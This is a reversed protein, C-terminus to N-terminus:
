LCHSGPVEVGSDVQWELDEVMHQVKVCDLNFLCNQHSCAHSVQVVINSINHVLHSAAKEIGHAACWGCYFQYTEFCSGPPLYKRVLGSVDKTASLEELCIVGPALLLWCNKTRLFNPLPEPLHRLDQRKQWPWSSHHIPNCFNRSSPMLREWTAWSNLVELNGNTVTTPIWMLISPSQTRREKPQDKVYWGAPKNLTAGHCPASHGFM